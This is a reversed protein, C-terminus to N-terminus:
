LVEWFTGERQNWIFHQDMISSITIDLNNSKFFKQIDLFAREDIGSWKQIVGVHKLKPFSNAILYFTEETLVSKEIYFAALDKMPNVDLLSKVYDDTVMWGTEDDSLAFCLM